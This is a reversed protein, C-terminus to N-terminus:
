FKHPKAAAVLWVEGATLLKTLKLAEELYPKAKKIFDPSFERKLNIGDKNLITNGKGTIIQEFMKNTVAPRQSYGEIMEIIAEAQLPWNHYFPSWPKGGFLESSSVVVINKALTQAKPNKIDKLKEINAEAMARLGAKTAKIKETITDIDDNM